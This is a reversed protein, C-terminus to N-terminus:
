RAEAERYSLTWDGRDNRRWLQGCLECTWRRKRRANVPVPCIHAVDLRANM